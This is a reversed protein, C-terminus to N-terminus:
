IDSNMEEKINKLLTKVKNLKLQIAIPELINLVAELDKQCFSRINNDLYNIKINRGKCISELVSYKSMTGLMTKFPIVVREINKNLVINLMRLFAESNCSLPTSNDEVLIFTWKNIDCYIKTTSILQEMEKEDQSNIFIITSIEIERDLMRLVSDLDYRRHGGLTKYTKIKEEKEWTRLVNQGVGIKEALVGISVLKM